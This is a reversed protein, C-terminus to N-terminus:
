LSEGAEKLVDRFASLRAKAHPMIASDNTTLLAEMIGVSARCYTLVRALDAAPNPRKTGRDSRPARPKPTTTETAM